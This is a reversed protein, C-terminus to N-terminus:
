AVNTARKYFRMFAGFVLAAVLVAVLLYDSYFSVVNLNIGGVREWNKTPDRIEAYGSGMYHVEQHSSAGAAKSTAAPLSHRAYGYGFGAGVIITVAWITVSAVWGRRAEFNSM